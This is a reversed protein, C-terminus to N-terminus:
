NYIPKRKFDTPIKELANFDKNEQDIKKFNIFSNSVIQNKTKHEFRLLELNKSVYLECVTTDNSENHFPTLSMFGISLNDFRFKFLITDGIHVVEFPTHNINEVSYNILSKVQIIGPSIPMPCSIYKITDCWAEKQEPFLQVINLGDYYMSGYEGLKSWKYGFISDAIECHIVEHQGYNEVRDSNLREMHHVLDYNCSKISELQARLSILLEKDTKKACSLLGFAIILIIFNKM